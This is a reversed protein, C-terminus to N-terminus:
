RKQQKLIRLAASAQYYFSTMSQYSAAFDFQVRSAKAGVGGSLVLPNTALGARAFIKKHITAELGARIVLPSQLKKEVEATLMVGEPAKWSTAAVFIVPLPEEPTLEAQSINFIGAGISWEPTLQTLGSVDITLASQVGVQDTRYQVLNAKVALGTHDIRHSLSATIFQESYFEDGFRFAGAALTGFPFPWNIAAVRRDAGPLAPIKEYGFFLSPEALFALSAPNHFLSSPDAVTFAANGIAAARAGM